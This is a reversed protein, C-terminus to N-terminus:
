TTMSLLILGFGLLLAAGIGGTALVKRRHKAQTADDLKLLGLAAALLGLVGISGVGSQAVRTMQIASEYQRDLVRKHFKPGIQLEAYKVLMPDVGAVDFDHTGLYENTIADFLEEAPLEPQFWSPVQKGESAFYAEAYEGVTRKMAWLLSSECEEVTPCPESSIVFRRANGSRTRIDLVWDPKPAKPESALTTESETFLTEDSVEALVEDQQEERGDTADSADLLDDEDGEDGDGGDECDDCAEDCTECEAEQTEDDHSVVVISHHDGDDFEHMRYSTETDTEADWEVVHTDAVRIRSSRRHEMTLFSVFLASGGVFLLTLLVGTLPRKRTIAVGVSVAVVGILIEIIGISM